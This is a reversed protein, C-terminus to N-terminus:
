ARAELALRTKEAREQALEGGALAGEEELEADFVQMDHGRADETLRALESELERLTELLSRKKRRQQKRRESKVGGYAALFADGAEVLELYIDMNIDDLDDEEESSESDPHSRHLEFDSSKAGYTAEESHLISMNANTLRYGGRKVKAIRWQKHLCYAILLMIIGTSFVLICGV